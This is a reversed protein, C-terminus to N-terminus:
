GAAGDGARPKRRREWAALVMAACGFGIAAGAVVDSLWHRNLYIRSLATLVALGGFAPALRRWRRALVAALGIANAAHSSPFSSNDRNREGDPRTRLTLRKLGETLLNLPILTALALRATEVGAAGGVVCVALLTGLVVAPRGLRDSLFRAPAEFVPRRADQVAHQVSVDLSEVPALIALILLLAKM